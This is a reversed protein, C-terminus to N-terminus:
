RRHSVGVKKRALREQAQEAKALALVAIQQLSNLDM